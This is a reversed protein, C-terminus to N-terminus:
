LGNPHCKMKTLHTIKPTTATGTVAYPGGGGVAGAAEEPGEREEAADTAQTKIRQEVGVGRASM